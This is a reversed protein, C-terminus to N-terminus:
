PRQGESLDIRYEQGLTITVVQGGEETPTGDMAVLRLSEARSWEIEYAGAADTVARQTFPVVGGRIIRRGGLGTPVFPKEPRVVVPRNAVARGKADLVKGRVVASLGAKVRAARTGPVLAFHRSEGNANLSEEYELFGGAEIQVTPEVLYSALEFRGQADTKGAVAVGDGSILRVTAGAIPSRGARQVVYGVVRNQAKPTMLYVQSGPRVKAAIVPAFAPHRIELRMADASVPGLRFRGDVDTEGNTVVTDGRMLMLVAGVIARKTRQDQVEGEVCGGSRLTLTVVDESRDVEFTKRCFADGASAEIRYVGEAVFRVEAENGDALFEARESEDGFHLLEPNFDPRRITSLLVHRSWADRLEQTVEAGVRMRVTPVSRGIPKPEDLCAIRFRV